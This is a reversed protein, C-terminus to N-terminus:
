KDIILKQNVISFKSINFKNSYSIFIITTIIINVQDNIIVGFFQFLTLDSTNNIKCRQSKLLPFHPSGQM